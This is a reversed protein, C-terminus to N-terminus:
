RRSSIGSARWARWCLAPAPVCISLPGDAHKVLPPNHGAIIGAPSGFFLGSILVAGDRCNMLAGNIPIGFDTGLIAFIGFIVGIILQKYRYKMKGCATYRDLTYIVAAAAVPIAGAIAHKLYPNM